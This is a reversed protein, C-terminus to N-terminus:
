VKHQKTTDYTKALRYETTTRPSFMSGLTHVRKEAIQKRHLANLTAISERLTYACQWVNTLKSAAREQVPTLKM